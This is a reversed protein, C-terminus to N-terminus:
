RSNIPDIQRTVFQALAVCRLDDYTFESNCKLEFADDVGGCFAGAQGFGDFGCGLVTVAKSRTQAVGGEGFARLGFCHGFCGLVM